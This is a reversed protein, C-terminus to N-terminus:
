KKAVTKISQNIARSFRSVIRKKFLRYAPFLFPAPSIRGVKRGTTKQVREQTGFEFLHALPSRFGAVAVVSQRDADPLLYARGSAGVEGEPGSGFSILAKAQDVVLQASVLAAETIKQKAEPALANLKQALKEKRTWKATITM